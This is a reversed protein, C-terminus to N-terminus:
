RSGYRDPMAGGQGGPAGARAYMDLYRDVVGAGFTSFVWERGKRGAASLRVPEELGARIVQALREGSAEDTGGLDLITAAGSAELEQWLDVGRTTVVPTGCALAEILVYGFSEQYSPLVFMNAAAYLSLKLDGVVLGVLRVRDTLGLREVLGRVTREYHPDAPGAIVLNFPTGAAKLARAGHLLAGIGKQPHVRGLFLLMPAAPDIGFRDRAAGASPPVLFPKLDVPLPLVVVRRAGPFWPRAQRLEAETTCHVAGAGELMRRGFLALYARKKARRQTMCWDDLMGHVSSVYPVGARRCASAFQAVDREWVGHVHAADAGTLVERARALADRRLFGLPGAGKGLLAIRPEGPDGRKWAGPADADDLTAVTVEHGAAAAGAAMDLLARVVGGDALRLRTLYHVLRMPRASTM